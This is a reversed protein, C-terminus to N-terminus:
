AIANSFFVATMELELDSLGDEGLSQHSAFGSTNASTPKWGLTASTAKQVRLFKLKLLCCSQLDNM